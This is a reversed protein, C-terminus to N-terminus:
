LLISSHIRGEANVMSVVLDRFLGSKSSRIKDVFERGKLGCYAAKIQQWHQTHWHFRCVRVGLLVDNGAGVIGNNSQADYLLQADRYTMDTATRVAHVAIKRTMKKLQTNRRIGEDLYKNTQMHFYLAVQTIHIDNRHLLIDLLDRDCPYARDLIKIIKDVDIAVLAQNVPTNPDPRSQECCVNLAHALEPDTCLSSVLSALSANNGMQQQYKIGLFQIDEPHRGVFIDIM